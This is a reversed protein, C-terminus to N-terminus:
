KPISPRELEKLLVDVAQDLLKGRVDKYRIVGKADLVYITPLSSVNLEAVIKGEPGNYWHTWPMPEKKLFETLTDPKEDVTISVLTFPKGNLRKVLERQHPILARCPGCWTAWVDLVVVQGKLDALQVSKGSLDVSKLEPAAKGIGLNRIEHLHGKAIEGLTKARRRGEIPVEAYDRVVQELLKESEKNVLDVDTTVLFAFGTKELWKRQRWDPNEDRFKTVMRIRGLREEALRYYALGRVDRHPSKELVTRLFGEDAKKFVLPLKDSALYDRRLIDIAKRQTEAAKPEEDSNHNVVWALAEVAAADKPYKEALAMFRPYLREPQPYKKQYFENREAESKIKGYAKEFSDLEDQYENELAKLQQAPPPDPEKRAGQKPPRNDKDKSKDDAGHRPLEFRKEDIQEDLALSTYTETLNGSLSDQKITIERKLPLKTKADLWVKVALPEKVLRNHLKHHIVLAQREGVVTIEGLKFDSVGFQKKPDFEGPEQGPQVNEALFFMPGLIGVRALMFRAESNYNKRVAMFQPPTKGDLSASMSQKGDSIVTMNASQKGNPGYALEGKIKLCYKDGTALLLNGNLDGNLTGQFKGSFLVDVSKAKMWKQEMQRFLEEARDKPQDDGDNSHIPIEASAGPRESAYMQIASGIGFCVLLAITLTVAVLKLKTLFMSKLVGETLAAVKTSVVGAVAGNSAAVLTATKITSSVVAAPVCASAANQALLAALSGGSVALGHRALRKALMQHATSLRSSLTGEPIKLQAAVAKRTRGELDCLVVPLRYKDPLAILEQDLLRQLEERDDRSDMAPEPMSTVQKENARVRASTTRAKFAAHCAVGYLWNGVTEPQEVTAAKGVLILFAAQFADEADAAHGVIRRCVGWVMPGHRRVIAAFAAEDHEQLFRSLLQGDSLTDDERRLVTKRLHEVVQIVPSNPV